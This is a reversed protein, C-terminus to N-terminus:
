ILEEAAVVVTLRSGRGEVVGGESGRAKRRRAQPVVPITTV